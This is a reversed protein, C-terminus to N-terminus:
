HITKNEKEESLMTDYDSETMADLLFVATEEGDSLKLTLYNGSTNVSEAVFVLLEMATMNELDLGEM